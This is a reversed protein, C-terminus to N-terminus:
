VTKLLLKQLKRVLTGEADLIATVDTATPTGIDWTQAAAGASIATFALAILFKILKQKM